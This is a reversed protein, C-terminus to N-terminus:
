KILFKKIIFIKKIHSSISNYYKLVIKHKKFLNRKNYYKEMMKYCILEYSINNTQSRIKNLTDIVYLLINRLNNGRNFAPIYLTYVIQM